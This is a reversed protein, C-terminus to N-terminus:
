KEGEEDESKLIETMRGVLNLFTPEYETHKTGEIFRLNKAGKTLRQTCYITDNKSLQNIEDETLKLLDDQSMEKLDKRDLNMGRDEIERDITYRETQM